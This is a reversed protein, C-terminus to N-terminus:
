IYFSFMKWCSCICIYKVCLCHIQLIVSGTFTQKYQGKFYDIGSVLTCHLVLCLKSFLFTECVGGFITHKYVFNNMKYYNSLSVKNNIYKTFGYQDYTAFGCPQRPHYILVYDSSILFFFSNFFFLKVQGRFITYKYGFNNMKYHNSLSVQYNSSINPSAM